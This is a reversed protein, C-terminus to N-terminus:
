PQAKRFSIAWCWPEDSWRTGPKKHTADWREEFVDVASRMIAPKGDWGTGWIHAHGEAEAEDHNVTDLRQVRVSAVELTFRSAWRPMQTSSRWKPCGDSDGEDDPWEGPYKATTDAKYEVRNARIDAPAAEGPWILAFSERVWLRQGVVGFPFRYVGDSDDHFGIGGGDLPLVGISDPADWPPQPTMVVRHQTKTGALVSRVEAATFNIGREKM